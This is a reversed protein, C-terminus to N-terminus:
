ISSLYAKNITQAIRNMVFAKSTLIGQNDIEDYLVSQEVPLNLDKSLSKYITRDKEISYDIIRAFTHLYTILFTTTIDLNLKEKIEKLDAADGNVLEKLVKSIVKRQTLIVEIRYYEYIKSFRNNTLEDLVLHVAKIQATKSAQHDWKGAAELIAIVLKARVNDSVIDKLIDSDIEMGHESKIHSSLADTIKKSSQHDDQFIDDDNQAFIDDDNYTM